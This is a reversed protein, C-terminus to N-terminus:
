IISALVLIRWTFKFEAAWLVLDASCTAILSSISMISTCSSYTILPASESSIRDIEWRDNVYSKGFLGLRSMVGRM